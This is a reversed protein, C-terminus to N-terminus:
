LLFPVEGVPSCILLHPNLWLFFYMLYDPFCVLCSWSLSLVAIGFLPFCVWLNHFPLICYCNIYIFFWLISFIIKHLLSCFCHIYSLCLFCFLLYFSLYISKFLLLISVVGLFTIYISLVPCIYSSSKINLSSFGLLLLFSYM